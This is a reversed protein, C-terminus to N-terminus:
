SMLYNKEHSKGAVLTSFRFKQTSSVGDTIFTAKAYKYGECGDKRGPEEFPVLVYTDDLMIDVQVLSTPNYPQRYLTRIEFEAGSSAEIYKSATQPATVDQLADAPTYDFEALPEGAVEITVELGPLASAIAM